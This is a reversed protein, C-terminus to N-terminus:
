LCGKELGTFGHQDVVPDLPGSPVSILSCSIDFQQWPGDHGVMNVTAIETGKQLCM